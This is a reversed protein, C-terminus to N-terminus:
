WRWRACADAGYRLKDLFACLWRRHLNRQWLRVNSVVQAAHRVRLYADHRFLVFPHQHGRLLVGDLRLRRPHIQAHRQVRGASHWGFFSFLFATGTHLLTAGLREGIMDLVPKGSFTSYGFNGQLIQGMWNVYQVLIPKNTELAEKARNISEISTRPNVMNAVARRAGTEYHPLHARHHRVRHPHSSNFPRSADKM